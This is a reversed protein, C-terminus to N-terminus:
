RTSSTRISLERAQLDGRRAAVGDANKFEVVESTGWLTQAQQPNADSVKRLERFNGDTAVLDPFEAFTQETLLLV